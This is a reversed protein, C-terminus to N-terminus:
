NASSNKGTLMKHYSGLAPNRVNKLQLVEVKTGNFCKEYVVCKEHCSGFFYIGYLNRNYTTVNQVINDM